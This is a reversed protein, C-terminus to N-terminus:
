KILERAQKEIELYKKSNSIIISADNKEGKFGSWRILFEQYKKAKLEQICKKTKYYVSLLIQMIYGRKDGARVLEGLVNNIDEISHKKIKPLGEYESINYDLRYIAKRQIDKIDNLIIELKENLERKKNTEQKVWFPLYNKEIDERDSEKLFKEMDEEGKIVEKEEGKFDFSLQNIDNIRKM